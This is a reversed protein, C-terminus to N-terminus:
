ISEAVEILDSLIASSTEKPGAGYGILTIEGATDTDLMIANLSGGVNIPHDLPIMRPSVELHSVDGILKVAYGHKKALDVTDPTIDRIGVVKIDKISVNRGMLANALIAVKAASDIGDIDYSPDPEAIGLTQAEKLASDFDVGEESMKDLIYNTTGNLIGYISKIENAQLTNRYLNILPIAGGVTAEYKLQLNRKLAEQTLETFKVALPAKNSTVVHMNNKLAKLIHSVGPEGTKINGPTLEIMIDAKVEDLVSQTKKQTWDRHSDLKKKGALELAKQLDVGSNENILSGNAECIASVRFDLSHKERLTKEKALLSRALGQGVVGFGVLTLRITKM